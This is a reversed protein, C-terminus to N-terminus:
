QFFNKTTASFIGLESLRLRIILIKFCQIRKANIEVHVVRIPVISENRKSKTIKGM